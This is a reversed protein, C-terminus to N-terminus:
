KVWGKTYKSYNFEDIAKLPALGEPLAGDLGQVQYKSILMFLLYGSGSLVVGYHFSISDDWLPFFSPAILNLAKATGVPRLTAEFEAFLRLVFARDAGTISTISRDRVGLFMSFHETVLQELDAELRAKKDPHFRYYNNNWSKLLTGIATAVAGVSNYRFGTEVGNLADAYEDTGRLEKEAYVEHAHILQDTTPVNIAFDMM